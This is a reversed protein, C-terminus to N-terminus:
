PTAGQHARIAQALAAIFQAFSAASRDAALGLSAAIQHYHQMGIM